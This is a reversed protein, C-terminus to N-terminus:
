SSVQYRCAVGRERKMAVDRIHINFFNLKNSAKKKQDTPTNDKTCLTSNPNNLPKLLHVIQKRPQM